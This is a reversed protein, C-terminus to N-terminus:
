VLLQTSTMQMAVSLLLHYHRRHEFMYVANFMVIVHSHLQCWTICLRQHLSELLMYHETNCQIKDKVACVRVAINETKSLL